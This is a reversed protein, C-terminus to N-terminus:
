WVYDYTYIEASYDSDGVSLRGIKLNLGEKSYLFKLLKHRETADMKWLNYCSSGTIAVGIGIFDSKLEKKLNCNQLVM